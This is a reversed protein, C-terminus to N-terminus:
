LFKTTFPAARDAAGFIFFLCLIWAFGERKEEEEEKVQVLIVWAPKDMGDTTGFTLKKRTKTASKLTLFWFM